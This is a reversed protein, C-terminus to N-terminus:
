IWPSYTRGHIQRHQLSDPQDTVPNISTSHSLNDSMSAVICAVNGPDHICRIMPHNLSYHGTYNSVPSYLSNYLPQQTVPPSALKSVPAQHNCSSFFSSVIMPNFRLSPSSTTSASAMSSSEGEAFTYIRTASVIQTGLGKLIYLMRADFQRMRAKM